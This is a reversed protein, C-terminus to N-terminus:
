QSLDDGWLDKREVDACVHSSLTTHCFRLNRSLYARRDKMPRGIARWNIRLASSSKVVIM